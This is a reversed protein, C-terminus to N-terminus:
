LLCYEKALLEKLRDGIKWRLYSTEQHMKEFDSPNKRYFENWWIIKEIRNWYEVTTWFQQSMKHNYAKWVTEWYDNDVIKKVQHLYKSQISHRKDREKTWMVFVGNTTSRAGRLNGWRESLAKNMITSHLNKDKWFQNSDDNRGYLVLPIMYQGTTVKKEWSLYWEPIGHRKLRRTIHLVLDKVIAKDQNMLYEIDNNTTVDRREEIQDRKLKRYEDWDTNTIQPWQNLHYTVIQKRKEGLAVRTHQPLEEFNQFFYSLHKYLENVSSVSILLDNNIQSHLENRKNQYGWKVDCIRHLTVHDTHVLRLKNCEQDGLLMNSLPMVHHVSTHPKKNM